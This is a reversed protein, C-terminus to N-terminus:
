KSCHKYKVVTTTIKNMRNLLGISNDQSNRQRTHYADNTTTVQTQNHINNTTGYQILRAVPSVVWKCDLLLLLILLLLLNWPTDNYVGQVIWSVFCSYLHATSTNAIPGDLRTVSYIMWTLQHLIHIFLLLPAFIVQIVIKWNVEHKFKCYDRCKVWNRVSILSRLYKEYLM